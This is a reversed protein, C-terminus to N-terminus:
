TRGYAIVHRTHTVTRRVTCHAAQRAAQLLFSVGACAVVRIRRSSTAGLPLLWDGSSVCRRVGTAQPLGRSFDSECPCLAPHHTGPPQTPISATNASTGDQLTGLEAPRSHPGTSVPPTWRFVAPPLMAPSVHGAMVSRLPPSPATTLLHKPSEPAMPPPCFWIDAGVGAQSAERRATGGNGGGIQCYNCLMGRLTLPLNFSAFDKVPALGM